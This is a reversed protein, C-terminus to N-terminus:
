SGQEIKKDNKWPLSELDITRKESDDTASSPTKLIEISLHSGDTFSFESSTIPAVSDDLNLFEWRETSFIYTRYNWPSHGGSSSTTFALFKRDPSWAIKEVRAGSQNDPSLLSFETLDRPGRRRIAIRDEHGVPLVYATFFDTPLERVESAHVGASCLLTLLFVRHM